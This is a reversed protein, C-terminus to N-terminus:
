FVYCIIEGGLGRKRANFDSMLGYSTSIIAIGLGNIVKPLNKCSRYVRLGPRSIRKLSCIVPKNQYYKLTICLCKLDKSDKKDNIIKINKIYGETLLIDSIYKKQKSFPILVREKKVCLSNRIRTLMDAIPDQM